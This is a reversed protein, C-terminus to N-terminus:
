LFPSYSQGSYNAEVAPETEYQKQYEAHRRYLTRVSVGFEEAVTKVTKGSDIEAYVREMDIKKRAMSRNALSKRKM